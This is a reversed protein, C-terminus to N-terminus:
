KRNCQDNCDLIHGGQVSPPDMRDRVALTKFFDKRAGFCRNLSEHTLLLHTYCPKPESIEALCSMAYSRLYSM